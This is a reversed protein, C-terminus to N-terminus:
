SATHSTRGVRAHSRVGHKQVTVDGAPKAQCALRVAARDEGSEVLIRIGERELRGPPELNSMGDVVVVFCARCQGTGGCVTPWRYGGRLAASMITEGAGVDFEIGSPEVRVRTMAGGGGGRRAAGESM